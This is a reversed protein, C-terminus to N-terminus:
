KKRAWAVMDAGAYIKLTYDGSSGGGLVVLKAGAETTGIGVNGGLTSLHVTGETTLTGTMTDGTKLVYNSGSMATTQITTDPFKIGGVTTEITGAVTLPSSPATSGIGVYGGNTIRMMEVDTTGVFKIQTAGSAVKFQSIESEYALFSLNN